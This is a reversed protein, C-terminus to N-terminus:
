KDLKKKKKKKKTTALFSLGECIGLLGLVIADSIDNDDVEIGIGKLYHAVSEKSKGKGFKRSDIGFKSRASSAMILEFPINKDICIGIALTGMKALHLSGARNFGLFVEEVVALNENSFIKKFERHMQTLMQKQNEYNFEIFIFDIDVWKTDTTIFAVGTRKATDLGVAKFNKKIKYNLKKELETIKLKM